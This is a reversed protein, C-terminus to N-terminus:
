FTQEALAAPLSSLALQGGFCNASKRVRVVCVIIVVFLLLGCYLVIFCLFCLLCTVVVVCLVFLCLVVVV